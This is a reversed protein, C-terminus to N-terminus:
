RLFQYKLRWKLTNYRRWTVIFIIYFLDTSTVRDVSNFLLLKRQILLLASSIEVSFNSIFCRYGYPYDQFFFDYVLLRYLTYMAHCAINIQYIYYEEVQLNDDFIPKWRRWIDYTLAILSISPRSKSPVYLTGLNHTISFENKPYLNLNLLNNALNCFFNLKSPQRTIQRRM